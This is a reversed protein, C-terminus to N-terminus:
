TRASDGGTSSGATTTKQIVPGDNTLEGSHFSEGYMIESEIELTGGKTEPITLTVLATLFIIISLIGLVGGLGIM